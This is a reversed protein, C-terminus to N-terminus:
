EEGVGRGQAGVCVHVGAGGEGVVGKGALRQSQQGLVDPVVPEGGVGVAERRRRKGHGRNQICRPGVVHIEGNSVRYTFGM